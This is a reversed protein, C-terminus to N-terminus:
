SVLSRKIEELRVLERVRAVYYIVALAQWLAGWVSWVGLAMFQHRAVAPPYEAGAWVFAVAAVFVLFAVMVWLSALWWRVSVRARHLATDLAALVSDEPPAERRLSRAWWSLGAASWTFALTGLGMVLTYPRAATLLWTAFGTGAITIVVESILTLSWLWRRRQQKAIVDLAPLANPACTKWLRELETWDPTSM